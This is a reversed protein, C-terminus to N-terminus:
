INRPGPDNFRLEIGHVQDANAASNNGGGITLVHQTASDISIALGTASITQLAAGADDYTAAIDDTAAAVAPTTFNLTRRQLRMHMRNAGARAIGPDLLVKVSTLTAGHPLVKRLDLTALAFDTLSQVSGAQLDNWDQGSTGALDCESGAVVVVRAKPTQYTHEENSDIIAAFFLVWAAVLNQWWNQYQAPPREAPRWGDERQATPPEIKSPNGAETGSAYNANTAWTVDDTPRAPM